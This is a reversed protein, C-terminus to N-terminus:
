WPFSFFNDEDDDEYNDGNNDNDNNNYNNNNQDQNSDSTNTSQKSLTVKVTKKKYGDDHNGRVYLLPTNTMTVLFELYEAKVDGASLILDVDRLAERCLEGWLRQSPEDSLALIRM